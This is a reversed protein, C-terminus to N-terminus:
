LMDPLTIRRRDLLRVLDIDLANRGGFDAAVPTPVLEGLLRRAQNGGASIEDNWGLVDRFYRDIVRMAIPAAVRSGSGGHQVLVAVAIRPDDAPAYAAFWSHDRQNWPIDSGRRLVTDLSAVQATGTKGAVDMYPLSMTRFSDQTVVRRLGRNVVDMSAEDFPLENRVRRPYEFVVRQDATLVRDILRPYYVRGGNGMAAFALALQLPSVQIVDQGIAAGLTFGGVFGGPTNQNHWERTPVLGAREHGLGTGARQGFGFQYAYDALTDMGLRVGAEYFYVDCSVELAQELDVWGHGSRNHCRFTRGGYEISGNCRVRTSPDFVGEELAALATVIKFTSGPVWAYLAKDLMPHYPNEDIERKEERSLRGSWANPNFSPKSYMGLVSGDRPDVAVIAVSPEQASAEAMIRQLQLDITLELNKGPVPAVERYAGLLQRAVELNEANGNVDVVDRRLGPAGRLVAEYSRELGARGVYDGRRYGYSTLAELEEASVENVYGILHASLEDYPYHRQHTMHVFIGPMDAESTLIGALQDRSVNRSVLVDARRTEDLVRQRLTDHAEPTLNLLEVVRDIPDPPIDAARVGRQREREIRDLRYRTIEPTLYIDYVPRNEALLRGRGDTILGRDPTLERSRIFNRDAIQYFQQGRAIQLQYLKWGLAMVVCVFFIALWRLQEDFEDAGSRANLRGPARTVPAGPAALPPLEDHAPRQRPLHLKRSRVTVTPIRPPPLRGALSRPRSGALHHQVNGASLAVRM